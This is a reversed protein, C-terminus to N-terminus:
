LRLVGRSGVQMEYDIWSDRTESASSSGASSQHRTENSTYILIVIFVKCGSCKKYFPELDLTVLAVHCGSSPVSFQLCARVHVATLPAEPSFVEANNM